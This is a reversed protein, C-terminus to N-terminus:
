NRLQEDIVEVFNDVKKIVYGYYDFSDGDRLVNADIHWLNDLSLLPIQFHPQRFTVYLFVGDDKLVRHVLIRNSKTPPSWPSGYIMVDLTGKDFAVDISKDPIDAMDRVDMHKWEIGEIKSHREAMFEVVVRSFDVCLQHKYGRVALEAPIVSDGSGLHLIMPNDEAKLSQQSFLNDQFFTKLESFSRYWEHTPKEGDSKSYGNDWYSSYALAQEENFAM